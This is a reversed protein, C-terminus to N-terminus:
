PKETGAVAVAPGTEAVHLTKYLMGSIPFRIKQGPKIFQPNTLWPNLERLIALSEEDYKGFIKLSIAYLTDEPLVLIFGAEASEASNAFSKSVAPSDPGPSISVRAPTTAGGMLTRFTTSAYTSVINRSTRVLLGGAIGVVLAFGMAFRVSWTRLSTRAKRQNSFPIPVPEKLKESNPVGVPETFIPRLDMDALVERIVGADITNQKAVFGLSMANFCLNNINRPIGGSYVAILVQAEKTFLPKTFDYGAVRLRHEIYMQTEEADLPKLRALISVRQRFQVLRPSALMEALKPQGALIVHLMKRQPTEFNSLMRVVELVDEDLCQAEDIVLIIRKGARSERMLCENLKRQMLWIDDAEGPIELDELISRLM